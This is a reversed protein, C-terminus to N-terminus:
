NSAEINGENDLTLTRATGGTLTLGDLWGRADYNFADSKGAVESEDGGKPNLGFRFADRDLLGDSNWDGSGNQSLNGFYYREWKDPLGDGDTDDLGSVDNPDFQVVRFFYRNADTTFQISLIANAGAPNYDPLFTWTALDPSSEVLYHRAASGWWSFTYAPPITASDVTLKSGLGPESAAQAHLSSLPVPVACSFLLVLALIPKPM